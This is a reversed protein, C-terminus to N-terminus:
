RGSFVGKIVEWAKASVGKVMRVVLGGLWTVLRWVLKGVTKVLEFVQKGIWIVGDVLARGLSARYIWASYLGFGVGGGIALVPVLQLIFKGIRSRSPNRGRPRDRSNHRPVNNSAGWPVHLTDHYLPLSAAARAGGGYLRAYTNYLTEAPATQPIITGYQLAAGHLNLRQEPTTRPMQPTVLAPPANDRITTAAPSPIPAHFGAHKIVQQYSESTLKYKIEPRRGRYARLASFEISHQREIRIYSSKTLTKDGKLSLLIDLDPHRNSPYVPLHKRRLAMNRPYKQLLDMGGLSTMILIVVEGESPQPSLIVVPHDYCGDQLNTDVTIEDEPPLWM